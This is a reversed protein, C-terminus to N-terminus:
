SGHNYRRLEDVPVKQSYPVRDEYSPYGVALCMVAREYIPLDLVEAMRAHTDAYDPFNVCCSSVGQAELAYILGMAALSSDIYPVHRDREFRFADFRGVIVVFCPIQDLWGPTGKPIAGVKQVMEPDDFIEFRYPQRNCASPSMGALRVARDLVEREVPKDAFWRVSRRHVGLTELEEISPLKTEADRVFPVRPLDSTAEIQEDLIRDFRARNRDIVPHEAVSKFYEDLVQRSWSMTEWDIGPDGAAASKTCLEFVDITEDISALGFIPRRPRMILGKELRHVNRRLLFINGDGGSIDSLHKSRAKLTTRHERSFENSAFAYHLNATFSSRSAAELSRGHLRGLWAMQGSGRLKLRIGRLQDYAAKPLMRHVVGKLGRRRYVVSSEESVLLESEVKTVVVDGEPEV